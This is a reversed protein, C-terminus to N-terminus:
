TAHWCISCCSRTTPEISPTASPLSVGWTDTNRDRWVAQYCDAVEEPRNVMLSLLESLPRNLDNLWYRKSRGRGACALSLAGSGAFPEVLRRMRGPLYDLIRPALGRKSGQYQFPQPVNM